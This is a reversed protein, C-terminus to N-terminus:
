PVPRFLSNTAALVTGFPPPPDNVWRVVATQAEDAGPQLAMWYTAVVVLASASAILRSRVPSPVVADETM